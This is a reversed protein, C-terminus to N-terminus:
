VSQLGHLRVEGNVDQYPHLALITEVHPVVEIKLFYDSQIWRNYHEGTKSFPSVSIFLSIAQWSIYQPPSLALGPVLVDRSKLKAPHLFYICQVVSKFHGSGWQFALVIFSRSSFLALFDKGGHSLWLNAWCQVNKKM